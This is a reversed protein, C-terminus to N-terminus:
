DTDSVRKMKNRRFEVTRVTLFEDNEETKFPFVFVCIYMFTPEKRADKKRKM